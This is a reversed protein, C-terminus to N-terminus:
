KQKKTGWNEKRKTKQFSLAFRHAEDRVKKLLNLGDTFESLNLTKSRDVGYVIDKKKAIAVMPIDKFGLDLITKRVMNLHGRGGDLLILDPKQKKKNKIEILKRTVIEKTATYDDIKKKLSKINYHRYQAKYPKEKEFVVCAGVLGSKGFNSVDFGFILNPSKHLGLAEKLEGAGDFEKPGKIRGLAFHANRKAMKILELKQGRKPQRILVRTGNKEKLYDEVIKKDEIDAEVLIEPPLTVPGGYYELVIEKIAEDLKINKSNKRYFGHWGIVRGERINIIMVYIDNVEIYTAIIDLSKRGDPMEVKQKELMQKLYNLRDRIKAAKEYQHLSASKKMEEEIERVLAEAKGDLFAMIGNVLKKYEEEIGKIFCPGICKRIHYNLCPKKPLKRCTRLPFIQGITKIVRKVARGRLYPGFYRAGDSVVKRTIILRPYNENLTVKLYPFTKDDKLSINFRPSHKKILNNELLLAEKETDTVIFDIAKIEKILLNTKPDKIKKLFYSGIRKRLSKAKGIYIILKKQNYFLYVGPYSPIKSLNKSKLNM